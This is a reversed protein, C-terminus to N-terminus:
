GGVREVLSSLLRWAKEDDADGSHARFFRDADVAM